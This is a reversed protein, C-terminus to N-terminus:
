VPEDAHDPLHYQRVEWKDHDLMEHREQDEVEWQTEEDLLTEWSLLETDWGPPYDYPKCQRRVEGNPQASCAREPENKVVHAAWPGSDDRGQDVAAPPQPGRADRAPASLPPCQTGGYDYSVTAVPEDEYSKFNM